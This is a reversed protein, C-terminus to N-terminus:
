TYYFDSDYVKYSNSVKLTFFFHADSLTYFSNLHSGLNQHEEKRNGSKIVIKIFTSRLITDSNRNSCKGNQLVTIKINEKNLLDRVRFLVTM